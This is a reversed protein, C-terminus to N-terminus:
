LKIKVIEYQEDQNDITSALGFLNHNITPDAAILMVNKDLIIKKIPHGDWDFVWIEKKIGESSRGVIRPNFLLYISQEDCAVDYAGSIIGDKKKASTYNGSTYDYDYPTLLIRKISENPSDLSYDIIDLIHSSAAVLKKQLFSNAFVVQH